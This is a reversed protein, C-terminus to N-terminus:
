SSGSSMYALQWLGYGANDQSDVGYRFSKRMFVSEDDIKDMATFKIKKSRQLILPKLPRTTDLLYWAKPDALDDIVLYDGMDKTINSEGNALFDKKLIEIATKELQPPVILLNPKIKLSKGGDSVIGRMEERAKMFSQPTLAATGINSMTTKGVPHKNSFFKQGDFCLDNKELLAFVIEDYHTRADHAMQQIQPKVIGIQDYEIVDRSVEITLEWDKKTITYSHAKLDKLVRDGVWEKMKAFGALFGYDVSITKVDIVTAVKKYSTDVNKLSNNFIRSFGVSMATLVAQNVMAM